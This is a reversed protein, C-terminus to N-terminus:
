GREFKGPTPPVTRDGSAQDFTVKLGLALICRGGATLRKEEGNNFM